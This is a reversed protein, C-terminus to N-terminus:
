DRKFMPNKSWIGTQFAEDWTAKVGPYAKSDEIYKRLRAFKESKFVEYLKLGEGKPYTGLDNKLLVEVRLLFPIVASDANSWEGVAFGAAPLRAQLAELGDIFTKDADKSQKHMFFFDKFGEFVKTEFTNIFLRAQAALVPDAPLLHAEPFLDNLFELIVLSENIKATGPAPNEPPAKQGYTIAPIKGAPNVKTTYWEPKAMTDITFSTYDAKAQDLALQVRHCYPSYVHTYFTIHGNQVM